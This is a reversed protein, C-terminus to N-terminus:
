LRCLSTTRSPPPRSTRTDWRRSCGSSSMSSRLHSGSEAILRLIELLGEAEDIQRIVHNLKGEALWTRMGFVGPETRILVSGEGEKKIQASIRANMTAEPTAGKTVVWGRDLARQTIERYHLPEGAEELVRVASAMFGINTDSM